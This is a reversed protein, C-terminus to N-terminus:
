NNNASSQSCKTKMKAGVSSSHEHPTVSNARNHTVKTNIVFKSSDEGTGFTPIKEKKRRQPSPPPIKGKLNKICNLAIKEWFILL